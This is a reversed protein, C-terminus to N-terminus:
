SSRSVSSFSLRPPGSADKVRVGGGDEGTSRAAVTDRVAHLREAARRPPQRVRTRRRRRARRTTAAGQLRHVQPRERDVVVVVRRASDIEGRASWSTSRPSRSAPTRATSCAPATPARPPTPSSPRPRRSSSATSSRCRASRRRSRQGPQRDPDRAGADAQASLPEFKDWGDKYARYLPNAASPRRSASARAAEPDARAGADDRLRRRARQRQRPQRGPHDVWDPVEWDFQQVIEIAVTKQGELRLSNM